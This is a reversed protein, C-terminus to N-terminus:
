KEKNPSIETILDRRKLNKTLRDKEILSVVSGKKIEEGDYIINQNISYEKREGEKVPLDKEIFVKDPAGCKCQEPLTSYEKNCESCVWSKDRYALVYVMNSGKKGKTMIM